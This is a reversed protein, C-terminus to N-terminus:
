LEGGVRARLERAEPSEYDPLGPVQDGILWGLMGAEVEPDRRDPLEGNLLLWAWHPVPQNIRAPGIRRRKTPM